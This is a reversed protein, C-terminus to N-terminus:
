VEVEQIEIMAGTTIGYRKTVHLGVVLCDDKWLACETLVDCILKACNDSDPKNTHYKPADPRLEGRKFHNKPRPFFFDILVRLPQDFPECPLPNPFAQKIQGRWEDATKPNYFQAFLRKGAKVARAKPRPQGKPLGHVFFQVTKM